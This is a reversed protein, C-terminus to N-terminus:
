KDKLVSVVKLVDVMVIQHELMIVHKLVCHVVSNIYWGQHVSQLLLPFLLCWGSIALYHVYSHIYAHVYVAIYNAICYTRMYM